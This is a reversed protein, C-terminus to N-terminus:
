RTFNRRGAADSPRRPDEEKDKWEYHIYSMDRYIDKLTPAKASPEYDSRKVKWKM